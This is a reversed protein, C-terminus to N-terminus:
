VGIKIMGSKEWKKCEGCEARLATSLARTHNQAARFTASPIFQRPELSACAALTLTPNPNPERMGGPSM